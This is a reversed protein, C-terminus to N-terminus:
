SGRTRQQASERVIRQEEPEEVHVRPRRSLVALHDDPHELALDGQPMLM